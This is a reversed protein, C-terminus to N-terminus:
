VHQLQLKHRQMLEDCSPNVALSFQRAVASAWRLQTWSLIFNKAPAHRTLWILSGCFTTNNVNM